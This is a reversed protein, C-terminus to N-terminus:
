EVPKNKKAYMKEVVIMIGVCGVLIVAGGVFLMLLWKATLTAVDEIHLTAITLYAFAANNFLMPCFTGGMIIIGLIVFLLFALAMKEGIIPALVLLGNLLCWGGLIGVTGGLFISPIQKVDANLMFFCITVFFMPWTPVSTIIPAVINIAFVWLTILFTLVLDKKTPKKVLKM